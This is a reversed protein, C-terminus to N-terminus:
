ARYNPQSSLGTAMRRGVIQIARDYSVSIFVNNTCSMTDIPVLGRAYISVTQMISCPQLLTLVHTSAHGLLQMHNVRRCNAM